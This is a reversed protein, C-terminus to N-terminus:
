TDTLRHLNVSMKPPGIDPIVTPLKDVPCRSTSPQTNACLVPLLESILKPPYVVLLVMMLFLIKLPVMLLLEDAVIGNVKKM